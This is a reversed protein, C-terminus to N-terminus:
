QAIRGTRGSMGWLGMMEQLLFFGLGFWPLKSLKDPQSTERGPDRRVKIMLFLSKVMMVSVGDTV